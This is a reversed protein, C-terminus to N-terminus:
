TKRRKCEGQAALYSLPSWPLGLPPFIFLPLSPQFMTVVLALALEYVARKRGGEERRGGEEGKGGKEGWRLFFRNVDVRYCAEKSGLNTM